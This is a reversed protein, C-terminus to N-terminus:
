HWSSCLVHHIYSTLLLSNSFAIGMYYSALLEDFKVSPVILFNRARAGCSCQLLGFWVFVFCVGGFLYASCM